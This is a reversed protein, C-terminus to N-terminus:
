EDESKLKVVQLLVWKLTMLVIMFFVLLPWNTSIWQAVSGIFLNSYVVKGVINDELVLDDDPLQNNVGKTKFVLKNDAQTQIDVIRHTVSTNASAMFTIDDGIKLDNVNVKRTLIFSGKPIVDQMSESVVVMGTYGAVTIPAGKQASKVLLAGVLLMFILLYFLINGIIRFIDKKSFQNKVKNNSNNKVFDPLIDPSIRMSSASPSDPTFSPIIEKKQLQIVKSRLRANESILSSSLHNDRELSSIVKQLKIHEEILERELTLELIMLRNRLKSNEEWIMREIEIDKKRELEIEVIKNWLQFNHECLERLWQNNSSKMKDIQVTEDNM